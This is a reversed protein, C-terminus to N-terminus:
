KKKEDTNLYNTRYQDDITSYVYGVGLALAGFLSGFIYGWKHYGLVFGAITLILSLLLLYFFLKGM